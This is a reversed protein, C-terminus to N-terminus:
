MGVGDSNELESDLESRCDDGSGSDTEDEWGELERNDLEWEPKDSNCTDSSACDINSADESVHDPERDANQDDEIDSPEGSCSSNPTSAPRHAHLHGVGLGWHYRM